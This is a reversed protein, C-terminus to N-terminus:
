VNVTYTYYKRDWSAPGTVSWIGTVPDFVMPVSQSPAPDDALDYINATVNNATPAWVSLTPVGSDYTVGLEADAAAAAYLDDLVFPIQVRTAEIQNGDGDFAVAILQGRLLTAAANVADVPLTWAPQTSLHRANALNPNTGPTMTYIADAGALESGVVSIDGNASYFLAVSAPSGLPNWVVTDNTLWHAAAGTILIANPDPPATFIQNIGSQVFIMNGVDAINIFQDPGPDKAPGNHIILGLTEPM